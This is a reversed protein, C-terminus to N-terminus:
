KAQKVNLGYTLNIEFFNYRNAQNEFTPLFYSFMVHLNDNVIPIKHLGIYFNIGRQTKFGAGWLLTQYHEM